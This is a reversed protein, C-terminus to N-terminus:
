IFAVRRFYLRIKVLNVLWVAIWSYFQRVQTPLRTWRCLCSCSIIWGSHTSPKRHNSVCLGRRWSSGSLKLHTPGLAVTGRHTFFFYHSSFAPPGSSFCLSPSAKGGGHKHLAIFVGSCGTTSQHLVGPPGAWCTSQVNTTSNRNPGGASLCSCDSKVVTLVLLLCVMNDCIESLSDWM